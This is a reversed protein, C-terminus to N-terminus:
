ISGSTRRLEIIEQYLKPNDVIVISVKYRARTLNQRLMDITPYYSEEKVSLIGKENYFFNNDIMVVINDFEQSIIDHTTPIIGDIKLNDLKEKTHQSTTMNILQYDSEFAFYKTYIKAQDIGKIHYINVMSSPIYYKEEHIKEYEKVVRLDFFSKLFQDLDPNTRIKSTIEKIKSTRSNELKEVTKFKKEFNSIQQHNDYFVVVNNYYKLNSFTNSRGGGNLNRDVLRQGEDVIIITNEDFEKRTGFDYPSFISFNMKNRLIHQGQNLKAGFVFGVSEGKDILQKYLDLAVLSKGTGARGKVLIFNKDNKNLESLINKQVSKQSQTLSYFGEIFKETDNYPSVLFKSPHFKHYLNVKEVEDKKLKEILENPEVEVLNNDIFQFLQNTKSVFTFSYVEKNNFAVKLYKKNEFLQKLINSEHIMDTKLEVNVVCDDFIKLLDFEKCLQPIKFGLIYNDLYKIYQIANKTLLSVFSNLAVFDAKKDFSFGLNEGSKRFIDWDISNYASQILALNGYRM